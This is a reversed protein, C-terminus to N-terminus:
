WRRLAKMDVEAQALQKASEQLRDMCRTTQLQWFNLTQRLREPGGSLISISELTKQQIEQEIVRIDQPDVGKNPDFQFQQEVWMRWSLLTGQMAPGIGKINSIRSPEVDSADEVNFVRLLEKRGKGINPLVADEIRHSELFHQLQNQRRSANLEAFRQVRLAPLKDFTLKAVTLQQKATVFASPTEKVKNWEMMAASYDSLASAYAIKFPEPGANGIRWLKTMGFLSVLLIAISIMPDPKVLGVLVVSTVLVAASLLRLKRRRTVFNAININAACVNQFWQSTPVSTPAPMPRIAEVQAWISTINFQQDRIVTIRIGFMPIGVMGEVRCWPCASLHNFFQHSLNAPCSKLNKSARDLSEIWQNASPRGAMTGVRTFARVFLDSVFTPFDSLRPASPPPQMQTSSNDPLYAFRYEAIAQEITIDATGNRYIGAFPHRGLFLMHFILVALGFGDHQTTRRIGQFTHGQLEPPTYTPVGVLCPYISGHDTIEFSDCDILAVMGNSSVLLNGHNVDGIVQGANHIAAFARAVNTASHLIFPFQAEPFSIRRSKPSYLLHAPQYGNIRRMLLGAPDGARHVKLVATPWAAIKLVDESRLRCMAQLKRAQEPALAKHYFKAVKLPDGEISWVSGEGGKGIEKDLVVAGDNSDYVVTGRRLQLTSM